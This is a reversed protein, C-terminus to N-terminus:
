VEFNFNLNFLDAQIEHGKYGRPNAMVRTTGVTYDCPDHVHGHCWAKIQPHDLIFTSLDSCYGGNMHYDHQYKEHISMPTPAHHSVVVVKDEAHQELFKSLQDVTNKFVSMAFTPHFKNVYRTGGHVTPIQIGHEFGIVRFDNMGNGVTEITVPNGRNMDTWFTGGFFHIDDITVSESELFHVNAPMEHKLRVFTDEYNNSYHEHNGCVYIVHRYKSFEEKIFRRYRDSLFTDKGANDARRFHGAEMIDGAAILIDGGPLELDAWNLHLDSVLNIVSM